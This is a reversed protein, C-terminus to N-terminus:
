PGSVSFSYADQHFVDIACGKKEVGGPAAESCVDRRLPKIWLQRWSPVALAVGGEEQGTPQTTEASFNKFVQGLHTAGRRPTNRCKCM